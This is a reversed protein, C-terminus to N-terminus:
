AATDTYKVIAVETVSDSPRLTDVIKELRESVDISFSVEGCQECKHCPVSRVVIVCSILDTVDTTTGDTINGKCFICKM